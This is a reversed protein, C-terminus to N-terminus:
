FLCEAYVRVAKMCRWICSNGDCPVWMCGSLAIGLGFSVLVFCSVSTCCGLFRTKCAGRVRREVRRVLGVAWFKLQKHPGSFWHRTSQTAQETQLSCTSIISTDYGHLRYHLSHVSKVIVNKEALLRRMVIVIVNLRVHQEPSACICM